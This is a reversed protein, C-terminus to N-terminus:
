TIFLRFLYRVGLRIQSFMEAVDVKSYPKILTTIDLGIHKYNIFFSFTM